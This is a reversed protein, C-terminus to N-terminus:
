TKLPSIIDKVIKGDHMSLIRDAYQATPPDHTVLVIIVGREKNLDVLINMIEEGTVSDLDGTPEDALIISPNNALARAIAVRQQEGGSLESPLHDARDGIGLSSLLEKARTRRKKKPVGLFTMPMEVNERATFYSLLNYFQFIFGIHKLRIDALTNDSATTLNINNVIITGRTAKDIAGILNLLTTKGCGSPGTVGIFEGRKIEIDIGRLAPVSQKGLLYTKQINKLIINSKHDNDM